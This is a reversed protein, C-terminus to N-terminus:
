QVDVAVSASLRRGADALLGTVTYRGPALSGAFEAEFALRPNGPGVMEQGLAMTFMRGASWRWIERGGRDVIVADFRQGSTFDLRVPHPTRNFVAFAIVIPQGPRYSAQDTAIYAGFGGVEVVPDDARAWAGTLAAVTLSAAVWATTAAVRRATRM